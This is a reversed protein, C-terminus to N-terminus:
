LYIVDKLISPAMLRKLQKKCAVDTRVGCKESIFQEIDVLDFLSFHMEQARKEDFDILIDLDSNATAEGRAYSGFVGVETVPYHSMLYPKIENKLIGHLTDLSPM